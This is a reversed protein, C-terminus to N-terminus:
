SLVIPKDVTYAYVNVNQIAQYPWVYYNLSAIFTKLFNIKDNITPLPHTANLNIAVAYM